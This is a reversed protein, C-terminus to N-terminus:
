RPEIAGALALVFSGLSYGGAGIRAADVEPRTALYSVAQSVDTLMLGCLRRAMAEDGKLRDHERTGSKRAARREGEGAKDHARLEAQLAPTLSEARNSSALALLSFAALFYKVALSIM